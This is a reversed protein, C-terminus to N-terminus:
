AAGGHTHTSFDCGDRDARQRVTAPQNEKLATM